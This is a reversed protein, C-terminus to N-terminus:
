EGEATGFSLKVEIEVIPAGPIRVIAKANADFESKNRNAPDGVKEILQRTAEEMAKSVMLQVKTM